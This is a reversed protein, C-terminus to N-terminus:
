VTRGGMLCYISICCHVVTLYFIIQLRKVKLVILYCFNYIERTRILLKNSLPKITFLSLSQFYTVYFNYM